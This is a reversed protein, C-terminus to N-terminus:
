LRHHVPGPRPDLAGTHIGKASISPNEGNFLVAWTSAPGFGPVQTNLLSQPINFQNIENFGPAVISSQLSGGASQLQAKILALQGDPVFFGFGAGFNYTYLVLPDRTLTWAGADTEMALGVVDSTTVTSLAQTEPVAPVVQDAVVIGTLGIVM